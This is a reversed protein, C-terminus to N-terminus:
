RRKGRSSPRSLQNRQPLLTDVVCTLQSLRRNSEFFPHLPLVPPFPSLFLPLLSSVSISISYSLWLVSLWCAIGNNATWFFLARAKPPHLSSLSEQRTKLTKFASRLKTNWHQISLEGFLFCISWVIQWMIWQFCLWFCIQLVVKLCM